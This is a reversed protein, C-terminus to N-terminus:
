LHCIETENLQISNSTDFKIHDQSTSNCHSDTNSSNKENTPTSRNLIFIKDDNVDNTNTTNTNDKSYIFTNQLTNSDLDIEDLYNIAKWHVKM